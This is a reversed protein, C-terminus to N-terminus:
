RRNLEHYLIKLVSLAPDKVSQMYGWYHREVVERLRRALTDAEDEQRKVIPNGRPSKLHLAELAIDRAPSRNIDVRPMTAFHKIVHALEHGFTDVFLVIDRLTSTDLDIVAKGDLSKKALGQAGGPLDMFRVIVARGTVKEACVEMNLILETESLKTVKM